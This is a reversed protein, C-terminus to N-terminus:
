QEEKEIMDELGIVALPGTNNWLNSSINSSIIYVGLLTWNSWGYMFNDFTVWSCLIYVFLLNWCFLLILIYNKECLFNMATHNSFFVSLLLLNLGMIEGPGRWGPCEKLTDYDILDERDKLRFAKDHDERLVKQGCQIKKMHPKSQLHLFHASVKIRGFIFHKSFM